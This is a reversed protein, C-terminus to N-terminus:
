RNYTASPKLLSQTRNPIEGQEPPTAVLKPITSGGTQLGAKRPRVRVMVGVGVRVRVWLDSVLWALRQTPRTHQVVM